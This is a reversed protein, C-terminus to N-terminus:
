SNATLTLYGFINKLQNTKPHENGFLFCETITQLYVQWSIQYFFLNGKKSIPDNPSIGKFNKSNQSGRNM